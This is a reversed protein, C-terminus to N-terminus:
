LLLGWQRFLAVLETAMQEYGVANPHIPDARLAEESLVDSFVDAALLVGEEEALAEYIPSDSLAGATARLLSFQPVGVLVTIAGSERSQRVIDRLSERVSDTSYKRLFDNGGLEIIVLGPRHQDLLAALRSRAERATDGPIGAN